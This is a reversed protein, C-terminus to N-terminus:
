SRMIPWLISSRSRADGLGTEGLRELDINPADVIRYDNLNSARKFVAETFAEPAPGGHAMNFKIGFDGDPGGPNHSASLM